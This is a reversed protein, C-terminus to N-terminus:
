TEHKRLNGHWIMYRPKNHMANNDVQWKRNRNCYVDLASPRTIAQRLVLWPATTLLTEVIGQGSSFLGHTQFQLYTIELEHGELNRWDPHNKAMTRRDNLSVCGNERRWYVSGHM